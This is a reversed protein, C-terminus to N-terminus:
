AAAEPVPRDSDPEPGVGSGAAAVTVAFMFCKYIQFSHNIRSLPHLQQFKTSDKRVMSLKGSAKKQRAAASNPMKKQDAERLADRNVEWRLKVPGPFAKEKATLKAMDKWGSNHGGGLWKVPMLPAAIAELEIAPGMSHENFEIEKVGDRFFLQPAYPEYFLVNTDGDQEFSSTGSKGPASAWFVFTTSGQPATVQRFQVLMVDELHRVGKVDVGSGKELPNRPDHPVLLNRSLGVSAREADFEVVFTDDLNDKRIVGTRSEGENKWEVRLGAVLEVDGQAGGQFAKLQYMSVDDIVDKTGYFVDFSDDRCSEVTGPHYRYPESYFPENERGLGDFDNVMINKAVLIQNKLVSRRENGATKCVCVNSLLELFEPRPGYQSTILLNIADILSDNVYANDSAIRENYTFVTSLLSEAGLFNGVQFMCFELANFRGDSNVDFYAFKQRRPSKLITAGQLTAAGSESADGGGGGGGGGGGDQEDLMPPPPALAQEILSQDLSVQINLFHEGNRTNNESLASVLGNCLRHIGVLLAFRFDYPLSSAPNYTIRIGSVFPAMTMSLLDDILGLERCTKQFDEFRVRGEDRAADTARSIEKLCGNIAPLLNSGVIMSSPTGAATQAVRAVIFNYSSIWPKLSLVLALDQEMQCALPSLHMVGGQSSPDGNFVAAHKPEKSNEGLAPSALVDLVISKQGAATFRVSALKPVGSGQAAAQESGAIIMLNTQKGASKADVLGMEALGARQLHGDKGGEVIQLYKGSRQHRLRVKDGFSVPQGFIYNPQGGRYGAEPELSFVSGAHTSESSPYVCLDACNWQAGLNGEISHRLFFLDHYFVFSATTSLNKRMYPQVSFYNGKVKQDIHNSPAELDRHSEDGPLRFARGVVVRRLKSRTARGDAAKGESLSRALSPPASSDRKMEMLIIEDNYCVPRRVSAFPQGKVRFSFGCSSCGYHLCVPSSLVGEDDEHLVSAESGGPESDGTVSDMPPPKMSLFRGTALHQLQFGEGYCLEQARGGAKAVTAAVVEANGRVEHQIALTALRVSAAAARSAGGSGLAVKAAADLGLAQLLETTDRARAALAKKSTGRAEGCSGDDSRALAACHEELRAYSLLPVVRWLCAKFQDTGITSAVLGTGRDGVLWGGEALNRLSILDGFRVTEVWVEGDDGTGATARAEVPASAEPPDVEYRKALVSSRGLSKVANQGPPTRSRAQAAAANGVLSPSDGTGWAREDRQKQLLAKKARLKPVTTSQEPPRIQGSPIGITTDDM